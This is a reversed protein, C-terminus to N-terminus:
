RFCSVDGLFVTLSGVLFNDTMVQWTFDDDDVEHGCDNSLNKHQQAPPEM